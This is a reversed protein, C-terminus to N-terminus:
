VQLCPADEKASGFIGELRKVPTAGDEAEAGDEEEPVVDMDAGPPPKATSDLYHETAGAVAEDVEMLSEDDQKDEM